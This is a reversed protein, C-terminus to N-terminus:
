SSGDLFRRTPGRAVETKITAPRTEPVALLVIVGYAASTLADGYVPDFDVDAILGGCCRGRGLRSQDGLVSPRLGRGSRRPVVRRGDRHRRATSSASSASRRSSCPSETLDDATLLQMVSSPRSSVLMTTDADSGHAAPQGGAIEGLDGHEDRRDSRRRARGGATVAITASTTGARLRVHGVAETSPTL